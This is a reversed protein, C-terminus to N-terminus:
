KHFGFDPSEYIITNDREFSSVLGYITRLDSFAQQLEQIVSAPIPILKGSGSDRVYMQGESVVQSVTSGSPSTMSLILGEDNTTHFVSVNQITGDGNLDISFQTGRVGIIGSPTKVIYQAAASLKKVSAYFSGQKLNLETDSVTDAGTDTTTLKDITLLSNQDLRIANQEATPKYSIMGRVPADPALGIRSPTDAQPFNVAIGLVVDAVGNEGTRISAGPPLYKGPVLPHWNSDGLSYSVDGQIRVVTAYCPRSPRSPQASVQLAAGVIAGCLVTFVLSQIKKM